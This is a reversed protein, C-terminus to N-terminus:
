KVLTAKAYPLRTVPTWYFVPFDTFHNEFPSIEEEGGKQLSGPDAGPERRALALHRPGEGM